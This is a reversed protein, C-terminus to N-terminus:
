SENNVLTPSRVLTVPDSRKLRKILSSNYSSAKSTARKCTSAPACTISILISSPMNSELAAIDRKKFKIAESGSIELTGIITSEELHSTISAPKFHTCPLPM